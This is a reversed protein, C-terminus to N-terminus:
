PACGEQCNLDMWGFVIDNLSERLEDLCVGPNNCDNHLSCCRDYEACDRTYWGRGEAPCGPLCNGPCGVSTNCGNLISECTFCFSQADHCIDDYVQYACGGELYDIGDQDSVQCERNGAPSAGSEGSGGRPALIVTPGPQWDAPAEGLITAAVALM